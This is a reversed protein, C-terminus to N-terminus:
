YYCLGTEWHEGTMGYCICTSDFSTAKKQKFDVPSFFNLRLTPVYMQPKFKKKRVLKRWTASAYVWSPLLIMFPKVEGDEQAEVLAELVKFKQSFPPNSLLLRPKGDDRAFWNKEMDSIRQGSSLLLRPKGEDSPWKKVVDFFDNPTELVDLGLAQMAKTSRHTVGVFPEWIKYDKVLPLLHEYFEPPTEWNDSYKEKNCMLSDQM